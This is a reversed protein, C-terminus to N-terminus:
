AVAEGDGTAGRLLAWRALLFGGCLSSVYVVVGEMRHLDAPTMWPVPPVVGRLEVGIVIRLANVLVTAVYAVALAGVLFLVKRGPRSVLPLLGFVGSCFTIVLFNVGACVPAIVLNLETSLYGAGAEAVFSTGTAAGVLSATPWLIWRLGAVTAVGYHAKLAIAVALAAAFGLRDYTRAATM